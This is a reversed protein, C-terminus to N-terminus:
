LLLKGRKVVLTEPILRPNDFRIALAKEWLITKAPGCGGKKNIKKFIINPTSVPAKFMSPIYEVV